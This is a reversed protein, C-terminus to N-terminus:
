VRGPDTADRSVTAGASDGDKGAAIRKQEQDVIDGGMLLRVALSYAASKLPRLPYKWLFGQVLTGGFGQKYHMIGEQKSGKTPSIRVGQFDFRKVGMARFTRMAEWHLLHMSGLTPQPRSGAYCNYATHESFPAIMCGQITGEHEAVFVKVHEGLSQIRKKFEGYDKFKVGSRKLTDAVLQYATQLFEMGTKVQVGAATAKRINQRFTKRIESMLAEEPKDLYNVFTGYPGFAAADPYTRFIAHNGSPIIIDADTRQFYKVVCNLFAREEDLTFNDELPLTETQFRIMRFGPKRIVTYPLVCRISGEANRGGVWGYESAESKLYEESAYIPLGPHWRIEVQAATLGDVNMLEQQVPMQM